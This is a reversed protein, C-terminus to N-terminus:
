RGDEPARLRRWVEDIAFPEGNATFSARHRWLDGDLECQFTIVQGVLAKAWHYTVTETCTGADPDHTYTGGGAWTREGEAAPTGFAFHGDALIKVVPERGPGPAPQVCEWAGELHPRAGACAGLALLMALLLAAHPATRLVTRTPM